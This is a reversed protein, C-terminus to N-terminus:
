ALEIRRQEKFVEKRSHHLRYIVIKKILRLIEIMTYDVRACKKVSRLTHLDLSKFVRFNFEWIIAIHSMIEKTMRKMDRTQRVIFILDFYNEEFKEFIKHFKQWSRDNKIWTWVKKMTKQLLNQRRVCFDVWERQKLYRQKSTMEQMISIILILDRAFYFLRKVNQRHSNWSVIMTKIFSSIRIRKRRHFSCIFHITEFEKIDIFYVFWLSFKVCSYCWFIWTIRNSFLSSKCLWRDVCEYNWKV